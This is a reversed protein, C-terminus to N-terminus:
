TGVSTQFIGAIEQNNQECRSLSDAHCLSLHYPNGDSEKALSQKEAPPHNLPNRGLSLSLATDRDCKPIHTQYTSQDGQGIGDVTAIRNKDGALAYSCKHVDSIEHQNMSLSRARGCLGDIWSCM